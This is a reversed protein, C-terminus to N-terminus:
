DGIKRDDKVEEIIEQAKFEYFRLTQVSAKKYINGSHGDDNYLKQALENIKEEV